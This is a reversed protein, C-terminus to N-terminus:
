SKLTKRFNKIIEIQTDLSPEDEQTGQLPEDKTEVTIQGTASNSGFLVLSSEYKNAAEKVPWFYIIEESFEDKNAIEPYYKDFNAKFEIDEKADSNVAFFIKIYQMRVSAEIADGSDLWEKAAKNIVKDKRVKYILVETEGDYPMGLISFPMKATFMEVHEKKVITKDLELKHDAVLYNKGQQDKVTRNWIGDLHLDGHSDLIKTSNVAIYYFSDDAFSEKITTYIKSSDIPRATLGLGKECSKFVQAKKQAIIDKHYKRLESFLEEKTEFEKNLEKCVIM